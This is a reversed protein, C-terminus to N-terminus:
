FSLLIEKISLFDLPFFIANRWLLWFHVSNSTFYKVSQLGLESVRAIDGREAGTALASSAKSLVNARGQLKPCRFSPWPKPSSFDTSIAEWQWADPSRHAEPFYLLHQFMILWRRLPVNETLYTFGSDSTGIKWSFSKWSINPSNFKRM